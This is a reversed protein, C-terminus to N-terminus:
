HDNAVPAAGTGVLTYACASGAPGDTCKVLTARYGQQAGAAFVCDGSPRGFGPQAPEVIVRRHPVAKWTEGLAAKLEGKRESRATWNTVLVAVAHRQAIAKLLSAIRSAQAHGHPPPGLAPSLVAAVSDVVLLALRPRKWLTGSGDELAALLGELAAVVAGADHAVVRRVSVLSEVMDGPDAFFGGATAACQAMAMFREGSFSGCTDVYAVAGALSARLAAANCLHSKGTAPPGAVEVISGPRLSLLADLEPCGTGVPPLSAAHKEVDLLVRYPLAPSCLLANAAASSRLLAERPLCASSATPDDPSCRCLDSTRLVRLPELAARVGRPVFDDGLDSLRSESLM